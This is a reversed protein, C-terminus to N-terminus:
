TNYIISFVENVTLAEHIMSKLSKVQCHTLCLGMCVTPNQVIAHLKGNFEYTFDPTGLHGLMNKFEVMEYHTFSLCCSNFIISYSRCAKCWSVQGHEHETLIIHEANTCM